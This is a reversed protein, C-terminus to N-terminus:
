ASSTPLPPQAYRSLGRVREVPADGACSFLELYFGGFTLGVAAVPKVRPIRQLCRRKDTEVWREGVSNQARYRAVQDASCRSADEIVERIRCAEILRKALRELSIDTLNDLRSAGRRAEGRQHFFWVVNAFPFHM